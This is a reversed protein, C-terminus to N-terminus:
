RNQVDDEGAKDSEYLDYIIWAEAAFLAAWPIWSGSELSCLAVVFIVTCIATIIRGASNRIKKM